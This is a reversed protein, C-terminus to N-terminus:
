FDIAKFFYASLGTRKGLEAAQNFAGSRGTFSDVEQLAVLDPQHETIVRAVADLDIQGPKSPPNAHHINYSLVRLTYKKLGIDSVATPHEFSSFFFVAGLLLFASFRTKKM